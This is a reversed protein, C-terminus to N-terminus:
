FPPKIVDQLWQPVAEYDDPVDNAGFTEIFRGTWYAEKAMTEALTLPGYPCRWTRTGTMPIESPTQNRERDTDAHDMATHRDTLACM